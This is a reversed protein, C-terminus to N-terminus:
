GNKNEVRKVRKMMSMRKALALGIALALSM